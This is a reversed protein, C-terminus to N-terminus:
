NEAKDTNTGGTTGANTSDLASQAKENFKDFAKNANTSADKSFNVALVIIAAVVIVSVVILGYEEMFTKM